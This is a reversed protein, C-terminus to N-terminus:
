LDLKLMNQVWDEHIIAESLLLNLVLLAEHKLDSEALQKILKISSRITEIEKNM